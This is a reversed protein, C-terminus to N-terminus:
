IAATPSSRSRTDVPLRPSVTRFFAMGNSFGSARSCWGRIFRAFRKGAKVWYGFPSLPRRRRTSSSGSGTISRKPRPQSPHFPRPVHWRRSRHSLPLFMGTSPMTRVPVSASVKVPTPNPWFKWVAAGIVGAGLIAAIVWKMAVGSWGVPGATKPLTQLSQPLPQHPLGIKQRYLELQAEFGLASEPSEKLAKELADM